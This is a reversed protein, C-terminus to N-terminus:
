SLEISLGKRAIAVNVTEPVIETIERLIKEEDANRHSVHCCIINRCSDTMSAKLFGVATELSSHGKVVHVIKGDEDEEDLDTYNVAILFHNINFKQLRFSCYMWDTMYLLKEGNRMIIYAYNECDTSDGNTHPVNFPLVKWGNGIEASKGTPLERVYPFKEKVAKNGFIPIGATNLDKIYRTHDGHEHTILAAEISFVDYECAKLVNGWSKGMDLIVRSGDQELVYTNGNSGTGVVILRM